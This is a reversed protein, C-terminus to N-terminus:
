WDGPDYGLKMAEERLRNYDDRLRVFEAELEEFRTDREDIMALLDKTITPELNWGDLDARIESM